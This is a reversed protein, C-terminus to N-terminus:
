SAEPPNLQVEHPGETPSQLAGPAKPPVEHLWKMLFLKPPLHMFHKHRCLDEHKGVGWEEYPLFPTM